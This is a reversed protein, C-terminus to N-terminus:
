QDREQSVGLMEKGIEFEDFQHRQWIKTTQGKRIVIIRDSLKLLEDLDSSVLLIPVQENRLKILEDHIRQISGIDVGRTPQASLLFNPKKYLERAVVLKQQNGGSLKSFINNEDPPRIDFNKIATKLYWRLKKFIIWPGKAFDKSFQNGLLFNEMLNMEAISGQNLRDEPLYRYGEQRLDHTSLQAVEQDKFLYSGKSIKFQNPQLLFRILESQGNGEIGAVGLIEGPSISFDIKQLKLQPIQINNLTLIPVKHVVSHSVRENLPKLKHGVMLETLDDLNTAQPSRHGVVTGQRFITIQDAYKLVDHLKHTVLLITKGQEKLSLIKRYFSDTEQPTLLATPEDFILIESEKSLLKLIELRQQFGITLESVQKSWDLPLQNKESLEQLEKLVSSRRIPRFRSFFNEKRSRELLLHDLATMSKALVFHQHVMGIKSAIADLPSKFQVKKQDLLVEGETNQYLGFLIKMATSKGAGNEGVFAHISRRQVTFTVDRNAICDGFSIGVSKFEILPPPSISM